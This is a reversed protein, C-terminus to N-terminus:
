AFTFVIIRCLILIAGTLLGFARLCTTGNIKLQHSIKYKEGINMVVKVGYILLNSFLFFTFPKDERRCVQAPLVALRHACNLARVQATLFCALLM